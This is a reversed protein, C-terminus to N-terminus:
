ARRRRSASRFNRAFDTSAVPKSLLHGQLEHCGMDVLLRRQEQTEVGEATVELKLARAMDIMAAVIARGEEGESLARVFLRDIKLRDLPYDRLYSMSSYGTGFDDLAVHMGTARLARLTAATVEPNEILVAETIEIQIRKPPIEYRTIIDLCRRAFNPDRLQVPSVNVAIWPVPVRKAMRCAEHLVWDGIQMILGCEEAISVLFTPSLAHHVPHNWRLLAEAGTVQGEASYLPQYVLELENGKTLAQRLDAEVTRRQKVIDDLSETFLQYHGRGRKKAEYLAVDAKRLLEERRIAAAPATAVGISAGVHAIEDEVQFPPNLSALLRDSLRKAAEVANEAAVVVAFEDGGIRAVTGKGGVVDELRAGAQRIVLDGARHGLTDNINKFRDLDVMLVAAERKSDRVDSLVADLREEFLARNPLGTLVDHFALHRARGESAHLELSARRLNRAQLLGVGIVIIFAFAAWPAVQTILSLGPRQPTWIFYGITQDGDSQVPVAAPRPVYSLRDVFQLDSVLTRNSIESRVIRDLFKVAVFVNEAGEAVNVRESHPLIPRASVIAPQGDVEKVDTVFIEARSVRERGNADFRNALKERLLAVAEGVAAQDGHYRPPSVWQGGSGSFILADQTDIVYTRDHGFFSYMWGGFEEAMWREDNAATRIVADDWTSFADQEHPVTAVLSSLAHRVLIIERRLAEEDLKRAAFWTFSAFMALALVMLLSIATTIRSTLTNEFPRM